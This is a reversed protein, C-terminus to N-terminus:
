LVLFGGEHIRGRAKMAGWCRDSSLISRIPDLGGLLSRAMSVMQAGGLLMPVFDSEGRVSNNGILPLPTTEVIRELLDLDPRPEGPKMLDVHLGSAGAEEIVRPLDPALHLARVKVVTPLTKSCTAVAEFIRENSPLLGEGAGARVFEPQRCHLNLEVLDVIGALRPCLKRLAEVQSFRINAAVRVGAIGALSAEREITEPLDKPPVLFESRRTSASLAARFTPIDANYGGLTVIAAGAEAARRCFAGDSVGAMAAQVLLNRVLISV